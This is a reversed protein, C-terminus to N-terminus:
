LKMMDGMSYIGKKGKIFEAAFVAGLALGRRNKALHTIEISDVDSEYSVTHTGPVEDERIATIKLSSPDSSQNLEWKKKRDMDAILDNALTIATGSPADLKHVHHIEKISVEYDTMPNMLRALYKNLAFFLNMGLSFNSAYFFTQNLDTCKKKVEEFRNLWGTTGCVVPTGAEFCKLINSYASEPTSFDIAVEARSLNESTFEHLNFADIKLVIEHHRSLAMKEIEKGMKGYGLLAIKM